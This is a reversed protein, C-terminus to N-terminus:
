ECCALLCLILTISTLQSITIGHGKSIAERYVKRAEEKEKVIGVVHKGDIFAEFGNVAAYEDLPFVFRAEIPTTSDNYYRQLITIEGVMDM